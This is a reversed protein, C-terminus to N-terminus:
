YKKVIQAEFRGFAPQKKSAGLYCLDSALPFVMLFCANQGSEEIVFHQITNPTTTTIDNEVTCCLGFFLVTCPSLVHLKKGTSSFMVLVHVQVQLTQFIGSEQKYKYHRFM